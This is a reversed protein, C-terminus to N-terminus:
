VQDAIPANIWLNAIWKEGELVDCGGHLSLKEMEGIKGTQDDIAHNYWFIANGKVPKIIHSAKKCSRSLNTSYNKSKLKEEDDAVPFATEGGETVNNLYLLVTIYRSSLSSVFKIDIALYHIYPNNVLRSTLIAPYQGLEKKHTNTSTWLCALFSRPWYGAM